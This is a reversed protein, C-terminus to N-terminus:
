RSGARVRVKADGGFRRVTGDGGDVWQDSDGSRWSLCGVLLGNPSSVFGLALRSCDFLSAVDAIARYCDNVDRFIRFFHHGPDFGAIHYYAERLTCLVNHTRLYHALDIIALAAGYRRRNGDISLRTEIDGRVIRDADLSDDDMIVVTNAADHSAFCLIPWGNLEAKAANLGEAFAKIVEAPLPEINQMQVSRIM